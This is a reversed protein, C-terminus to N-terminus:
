GNGGCGVAVAETLVHLIAEFAPGSVGDGGTPRLWVECPDDIEAPHVTAEDDRIPRGMAPTLDSFYGVPEGGPGETDEEAAALGYLGPGGIPDAGYTIASPLHAGGFDEAGEAITVAAITCPIIVPPTTSAPALGGGSSRAASAISELGAADLRSGSVYRQISRM